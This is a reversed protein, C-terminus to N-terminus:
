TQQVRTQQVSPCRLVKIDDPANSYGPGNDSGMRCVVGGVSSWSAFLRIGRGFRTNPYPFSSERGTTDNRDCAALSDARAADAVSGARVKFIPEPVTQQYIMILEVPSPYVRLARFFCM